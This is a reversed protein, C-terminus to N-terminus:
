ATALAPRRRLAGHARKVLLAVGIGILTGLVAGALVDLGYHVGLYVRAIGVIGALALAPWRFRPVLIAIAVACAFTTTAHGSPFSPSSPVAVAADFGPDARPPRPRAVTEKIAGSLLDALVLAAGVGIATLPLLRRRYLDRLFGALVFLPGKIWWASALAFFATGSTTRLQAASEVATHDLHLLQRLLEM